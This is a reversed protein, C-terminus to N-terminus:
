GRGLRKQLISQLTEVVMEVDLSSTDVQVEAAKEYIPDRHAMVEGLEEMTGKGTLTPRQASTRPDQNMRRVLAQRDAKLWIILGNKRLMEINETDLVAGGGPAIILGDHVSIEAIIRKELKRFHDWGYSKVIDVIPTDCRTEILHDTDVFGMQLRPALRSGVTTKGAARYGILVLNM